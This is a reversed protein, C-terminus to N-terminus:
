LKGSFCDLAGGDGGGAREVIASNEFLAYTGSTLPKLMLFAIFVRPSNPNIGLVCPLPLTDDCLRLGLVNTFLPVTQTTFNFYHFM